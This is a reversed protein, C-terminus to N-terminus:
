QDTFAKTVRERALSAEALAHEAAIRQVAQEALLRERAAESEQLVTRLRQREELAGSLGAEAEDIRRRADREKGLLALEREEALLARMNELTAAQVQGSTDAAVVDVSLIRDASQTVTDLGWYGSAALALALCVLTAFAVGMRPGINMRSLM